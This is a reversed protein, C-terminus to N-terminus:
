KVKKFANSILRNIRKNFDKSYLQYISEMFDYGKNTLSEALKASSIPRYELSTRSGNVVEWMSKLTPRDRMADEFTIVSVIENPSKNMVKYRLDEILQGTLAGPTDYEIKGTLKLERKLNQYRESSEFNMVNEILGDKVKNIQNDFNTPDTLNKEIENFLRDIDKLFRDVGKQELEFKM